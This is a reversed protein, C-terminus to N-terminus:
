DGPCTIHQGDRTTPPDDRHLTPAWGDGPSIPEACWVCLVLGRGRYMTMGPPCPRGTAHEAAELVAAARDRAAHDMAEDYAQDPTLQVWTM